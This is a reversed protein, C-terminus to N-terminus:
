IDSYRKRETRVIYQLIKEAYIWHPKGKDSIQTVFLSKLARTRKCTEGAPCDHFPFIRWM